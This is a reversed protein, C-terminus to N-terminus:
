VNGVVDVLFLGLDAHGLARVDVSHMARARAIDVHCDREIQQGFCMLWHQEDAM